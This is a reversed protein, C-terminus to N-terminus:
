DINLMVKQLGLDCSFKPSFFLSILLTIYSLSIICICGWVDEYLLTKFENNFKHSM